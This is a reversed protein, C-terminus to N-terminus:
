IIIHRYEHVFDKIQAVNKDMHSTSTYGSHEADNISIAEM